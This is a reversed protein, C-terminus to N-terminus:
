EPPREGKPENEPEAAREEGENSFIQTELKKLDQLSEDLEDILPSTTDDFRASDDVLSLPEPSEGKEAGSGATATPDLSEFDKLDPLDSLTKLSFVELFTKTTGYLLPRGPEDSRGVLRILDRELLTKLVGGSDVGRVQEIASRAIPQRYAVIALTEMSPSTLRPRAVKSLQAVYSAFGRKTRMQFGGAVEVLQFGRAPNGEYEEAMERLVEQVYGRTVAQDMLAQQSQLQALPEAEAEEPSAAETDPMVCPQNGFPPEEGSPEGETKNEGSEEGTERNVLSKLDQVPLPEPSVFLIAELIAKLQATEM